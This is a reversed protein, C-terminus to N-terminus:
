YQALADKEARRSRAERRKLWEEFAKSAEYGLHKDTVYKKAREHDADSLIFTVQKPM